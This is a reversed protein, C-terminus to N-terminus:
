ARNARITKVWGDIIGWVSFGVISFGTIIALTRMTDASVGNKTFAFDIFEPNFLEGRGLLTLSLSIFLAAIATNMIAFLANWRGVAFIGIALAAQAGLLIFMGTASWPWLQPNLIPLAQGNLWVLGVFRDWLLAGATISLLVLSAILEARGAAPHQPEPLQSVDWRLGTDAGTRDLVAFVLTVWFAVHLVVSFGVGISSGIIEGLPAGALSQALASGVIAVPPVILLLLKLLRWWTLYYRPGILQLPRDAFRAALVGPDGLESLVAHEADAPPEGQEVRAEIADAISAELEARVDAESAAPLSKVTAAIYRETLTSTTM